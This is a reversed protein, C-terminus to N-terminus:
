AHQGDVEAGDAAFPIAGGQGGHPSRRQHAAAFYPADDVRAPKSHEGSNVFREIERGFAFAHEVTMIGDGKELVHVASPPIVAPGIGVGVYGGCTLLLADRSARQTQHQASGDQFLRQIERVDITVTDADGDTMKSQSQLVVVPKWTVLVVYAV